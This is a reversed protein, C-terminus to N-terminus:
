VANKTLILNYIPQAENKKKWVNEVCLRKARGEDGGRKVFM